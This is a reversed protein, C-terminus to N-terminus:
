NIISPQFSCYLGLGAIDGRLHQWNCSDFLITSDRKGEKPVTRNKLLKKDTMQSEEEIGGAVAGPHQSDGQFGDEKALREQDRLYAAVTKALPWHFFATKFPSLYCVPLPAPAASPIALWIVSLTANLANREQNLVEFLHRVIAVDPMRYIAKVM